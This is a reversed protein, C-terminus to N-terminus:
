AVLCRFNCFTEQFFAVSYHFGGDVMSQVRQSSLPRRSHGLGNIATHEGMARQGGLCFPGSPVRFVVVPDPAVGSKQHTLCGGLDM